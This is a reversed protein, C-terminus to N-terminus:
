GCQPYAGVEKCMDECIGALKNQLLIRHKLDESMCAESETKQQVFAAAQSKWAKIEGQGWEVLNDMHELLEDWTMVGPTSDPAVFGPCQACQPYAGVEKCMDECVGALKNQLQARHQLDETACAKSDQGIKLKGDFAVTKQLASAQKKWGKIMDHGWESLNDMHELLEEWTMVGPTPDPPVFSPCGTCKPYAGVEKCMDECDGALKNQVQARHKLDEAACATSAQVVVAKARVAGSKFTQLASATKVWTKIM